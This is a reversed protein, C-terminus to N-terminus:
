KVETNFKEHPIVINKEKNYVDLYIENNDGNYTCEYYQNDPLETIFLGKCNRLTKCLWVTHVKTVDLRDDLLYDLIANKCIKEFDYTDKM